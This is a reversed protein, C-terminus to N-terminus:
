LKFRKRAFDKLFEGLPTHIHTPYDATRRAEYAFAGVFTFAMGICAFFAALWPGLHVRRLLLFVVIATWIFAALSAPAYLFLLAMGNGGSSGMEYHYWYAGILMIFLLALPFAALLTLVFAPHFSGSPKSPAIPRSPLEIM